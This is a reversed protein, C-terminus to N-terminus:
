SAGLYGLVLGFAVGCLYMGLYCWFDSRRM